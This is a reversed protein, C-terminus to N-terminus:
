FRFNYPYRVTRRKINGIKKASMVSAETNFHSASGYYKYRAKLPSSATVKAVRGNSLKLLYRTM